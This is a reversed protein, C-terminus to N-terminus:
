QYVFFRVRVINGGLVAYRTIGISTTGSQSANGAYYTENSEMGEVELYYQTSLGLKDRVMGSPMAKFSSLKAADLENPSGIKALGLAQVGGSGNEWNGPVGPGSLLADTAALASYTLRNRMSEQSASANATQWFSNIFALCLVFVLVAAAFDISFMQGAKGPRRNSMQSM